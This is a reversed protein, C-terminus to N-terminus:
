ELWVGVVGPGENGGHIRSNATPALTSFPTCNEEYDELDAKAVPLVSGSDRIPGRGCHCDRTGSRRGAGSKYNRVM